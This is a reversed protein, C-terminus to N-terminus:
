QYRKWRGEFSAFNNNIIDLSEIKTIKIEKHEDIFEINYKAILEYDNNFLLLEAFNMEYKYYITDKDKQFLLHINESDIFKLIENSNQIKDDYRMWSGNLLILYFESESIEKTCTSCFIVSLFLSFLNVKVM